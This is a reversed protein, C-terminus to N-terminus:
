KKLYYFTFYFYLNKTPSADCWTIFSKVINIDYKALKNIKNAYKNTAHQNFANVPMDKIRQTGSKEVLTIAATLADDETATRDTAPYDVKNSLEQPNFKLGVIYSNNFIDDPAFFFLNGKQATSPVVIVVDKSYVIRPFAQLNFNGPLM